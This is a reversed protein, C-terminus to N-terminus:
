RGGQHRSCRLFSERGCKQVTYDAKLICYHLRRSLALNIAALSNDNEAAGRSAILDPTKLKESTVRAGAVLGNCFLEDLILCALSHRSFSVHVVKQTDEDPPQFCNYLVGM